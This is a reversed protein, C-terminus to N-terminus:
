SKTKGGAEFFKIEQNYKRIKDQNREQRAADEYKTRADALETMDKGIVNFAGAMAEIPGKTSGLIAGAAKMLMASVRPNADFEKRKELIPVEGIKNRVETMFDKGEINAYDKEYKDIDFTQTLKEYEPIKLNTNGKRTYGEVSDDGAAATGATAKAPPTEAAASDTDQVKERVADARKQEADLADKINFDVPDPDIAKEIGKPDRIDSLPDPKRADIEAQRQALKLERERQGEEFKEPSDGFYSGIKSGLESISLMARKPQSIRRIYEDRSEGGFLSSVDSGFKTGLFGRPSTSSPMAENVLKAANAFQMGGGADVPLGTAETLETSILQPAAPPPSAVDKPITGLTPSVSGAYPYQSRIRQILGPRMKDLAPAAGGPDMGAMNVPVTASDTSGGVPPASVLAPAAAPILSATASPVRSDVVSAPAPAMSFPDKSPRAGSTDVGTVLKDVTQFAKQFLSLDAPSKAQDTSIIPVDPSPAAGASQISQTAVDAPSVYAGPASPLLDEIRLAKAGAEVLEPSFKDSAEKLIRRAESAPKGIARRLLPELEKIQFNLLETSASPTADQYAVKGM